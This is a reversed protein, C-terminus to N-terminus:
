HLLIDTLIRQGPPGKSVIGLRCSKFWTSQIPRRFSFILIFCQKETQNRVTSEVPQPVTYAEFPRNTTTEKPDKLSFVSPCLSSLKTSLNSHLNLATCVNEGSSDSWFSWMHQNNPVCWLGKLNVPIQPDKKQMTYTIHMIKLKLIFDALAYSTRFLLWMHKFRHMTICPSCCM